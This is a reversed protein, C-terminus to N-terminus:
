ELGLLQAKKKEFEAQTIIGDDLLQKLSRLADADITQGTSAGASGTLAKDLAEKFAAAEEYQPKRFCIANQDQAYHTTNAISSYTKAGRVQIHLCGAMTLGPKKLTTSVVNSLSITRGTDKKGKKITITNGSFEIEGDYGVFKM